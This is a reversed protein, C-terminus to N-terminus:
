NYKGDSDSIVFDTEISLDGVGSVTPPIPIDDEIIDIQHTPASTLISYASIARLNETNRGNSVATDILKYTGQVEILQIISLQTVFSVYPRSEIFNLLETKSIYEDFGKEVFADDLDPSLYKILENNLLNRLAGRKQYDNFKVSCKVKLQEFVPNSVEVKQYPSVMKSIYEKVERLTQYDVKVNRKQHHGNLRNKPILVIQMTSGKVLEKPHSNRGYVRVKEINKFKDLIIREVDWNSVARNKHRLQESVRDYFSAENEFQNNLELAYPGNIKEVGKVEPLSIKEIKLNSTINRNQNFHSQDAILPVAQTFIKIIRSNIDEDGNYAARIWFKGTPMLTNDFQISLPIELKVIGSKILGATTDELLLGEFSIWDNNSLYEWHIRPPKITTHAYVGHILEFGLSVIEGPNIQTLGIFLNGKYAIQPLLYSQTKVPGPFVQNHGFPYLHILKMDSTEEDKKRMMIEKSSNSYNLTLREIVPTFPQNPLPRQINKSKSNLLASQAYINAFVQHGFAIEPDKLIMFLQNPSKETGFSKRFSLYDMNLPIIKKNSLYHNSTEFLEPILQKKSTDAKNKDDTIVVKFSNNEIKHPYAKYYDNFGHRSGPLGAWHITIELHTLNNQFIFPNQIKLYNGVVPAPGFPMFPITHDLDGLSNSLNFKGVESVHAEVTVYDLIIHRLIKYPHYQTNNNVHIKICPWESEFDGGHISKDMSVLMDAHEDLAMAIILSTDSFNFKTNVLKIKKWGELGTISIIFADKFFNSIVRNKLKDYDTSVSGKKYKEQELIEQNILGGFMIETKKFSAPTIKFTLRINQKGKELILAPSSVIIGIHSWRQTTWALDNQVQAQGLTAPYETRKVINANVPNGADTLIDEEFLNNLSFNEHESSNSFPYYDSKYLTRLEAIKAKNIQMETSTVFNHKQDEGFLFECNEGTNITVQQVGDILQLEIIATGTNLKRKQQHLLDLYYFDLHKQTLQNIDNQLHKFLKFFSILLAIHPHHNQYNSLEEEYSKTALEKILVIAGFINNYFERWGELDNKHNLIKIKEDVYKKQEEIEELLLGEYNSQKLQDIWNSIFGIIMSAKDIVLSVMDKSLDEKEKDIKIKNLDTGAINAIVFASDKLLFSEWNDIAKSQLNYFNVNRAFSLTHQVLDLMSREDPAIYNASLAKNKRTEQSSGKNM